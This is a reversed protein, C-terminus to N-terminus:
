QGVIYREIPRGRAEVFPLRRRALRASRQKDVSSYLDGCRAILPLGRQRRHGQSQHPHDFGGNGIRQRERSHSEGDAWYQPHLLGRAM